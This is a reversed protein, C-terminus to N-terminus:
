RRTPSPGVAARELTERDVVGAPASWGPWPPAPTGVTVRGAHSGYSVQWARAGDIRPMGWRPPLHHSSGQVGGGAELTAPRGALGLLGRASSPSPLLAAMTGLGRPRGQRMQELVIRRAPAEEPPPLGRSVSRTSWCPASSGPDYFIPYTVTEIRGWGFRLRHLDWRRLQDGHLGSGPPIYHRPLQCLAPDGWADGGGEDQVGLHAM